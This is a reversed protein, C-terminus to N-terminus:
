RYVGPLCFYRVPLSHWQVTIGQARLQIFWKHRYCMALVFGSRRNGEWDYSCQADSGLPQYWIISSPSLPVQTYCSTCPELGFSVHGLIYDAIKYHFDLM